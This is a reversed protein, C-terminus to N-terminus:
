VCQIESPWAAGVCTVGRCPFLATNRAHECNLPKNVNSCAPVAVGDRQLSQFINYLACIQLGIRARPRSEILVRGRFSNPQIASYLRILRRIRPGQWCRVERSRMGVHGPRTTGCTRHRVTSTNNHGVTGCTVDCEQLNSSRRLSL